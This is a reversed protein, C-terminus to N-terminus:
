KSRVTAFENRTRYDFNRVGTLHVHDGDIVARPMVAVEPRWNRNNSHPIAIWWAVVGLFLLAAAMSMHQQRSFWVAWIAFAAFAIALGIRLGAWPLNPYYIALSAWTLALARFLFGVVGLLWRLSGTLVRRLEGMTQRTDGTISNLCVSAPHM